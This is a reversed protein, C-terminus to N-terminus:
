SGNLIYNDGDRKATTRMSGMADSGAGSETLAFAGIGGNCVLGLYKAKQEENANIALSHAFVIETGMWSAAFSHAWYSM